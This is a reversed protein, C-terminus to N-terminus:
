KKMKALKRNKIRDERSLQKREKRTTNRLRKGLLKERTEIPVISKNYIDHEVKSGMLNTVHYHAKRDKLQDNILEFSILGAAKLTKYNIDIENVDEYLIIDCLGRIYVNGFNTRKEEMFKRTTKFIVIVQNEKYFQYMNYLWKGWFKVVQRNIIEIGRNSNETSVDGDNNTKNENLIEETLVVYSLRPNKNGFFSGGKFNFKKQAYLRLLNLVHTVKDINGLVNEQIINFTEINKIYKM